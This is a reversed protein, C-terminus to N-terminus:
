ERLWPTGGGAQIECQSLGWVTGRYLERVMLLRLHCAGLPMMM